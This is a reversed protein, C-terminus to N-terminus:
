INIKEILTKAVIFNIVLTFPTLFFKVWLAPHVFGLHLTQILSLVGPHVSFHNILWSVTLVLLASYTLYVLFKVWIWRGKNIFLKYSSTFFVFSIGCTSGLCNALFASSSSFSLVAWVVIFDILVGCGSVFACLVFKLLTAKNFM